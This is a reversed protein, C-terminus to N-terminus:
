QKYVFYDKISVGVSGRRSSPEIYLSARTRIIDTQLNETEQTRCANRSFLFFSLDFFSYISWVRNALNM